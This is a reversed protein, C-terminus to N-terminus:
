KMAKELKNAHRIEEPEFTTEFNDPFIIVLHNNLRILTIVGIPRRELDHALDTLIKVTDGVKYNAKVEERKHVSM